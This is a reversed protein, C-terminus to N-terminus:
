TLSAEAKKKDADAAMGDYFSQIDSPEIHDAFDECSMCFEVGDAKCASAVCCWVFVLVGEIDSTDLESVDHGTARKFRVMAGMTVRCPLNQGGVSIVSAKKQKNSQKNM